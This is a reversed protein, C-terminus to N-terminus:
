LRRGRRHFFKALGASLCYVALSPNSVGLQFVNSGVTYCNRLGRIRLDPEVLSYAYGAPTTSMFHGGTAVRVAGNLKALNRTSGAPLQTLLKELVDYIKVLEENLFYAELSRSERGDSIKGSGSTDEAIVEIRYRVWSKPIVRGLAVKPWFLFSPVSSKPLESTRHWFFEAMPDVAPAMITRPNRVRGGGLIRDFKRSVEIEAMPAVIHTRLVAQNSHRNKLRNILFFNQVGGGALVVTQNEQIKFVEPRNRFKLSTVRGMSTEFDTVEDHIIDTNKPWASLEELRPPEVSVRERLILSEAFVKEDRLQLGLHEEASSLGSELISRTEQFWNELEGESPYTLILNGGWHKSLGGLRMNDGALPLDQYNGTVDIEPRERQLPTIVKVSSGLDNATMAFAYAALGGGVVVFDSM